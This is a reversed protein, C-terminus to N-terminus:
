MQQSFNATEPTSTEVTFAHYNGRWFSFDHNIKEVKRLLKEKTEFIGNINKRELLIRKLQKRKELASSIKKELELRTREINNGNFHPDSAIKCLNKLLSGIPITQNKDIFKRLSVYLPLMSILATLMKKHSDLLYITPYNIYHENEDPEVWEWPKEFFTPFSTKKVAVTSIALIMTVIPPLHYLFYVLALLTAIKLFTERRKYRTSIANIRESDVPHKNTNRIDFILQFILNYNTQSKPLKFNLIPKTELESQIQLLHIKAQQIFLRTENIIKTQMLDILIYTCAISKVEETSIIKQEGLIHKLEQSTPKMSIVQKFLNTHFNPEDIENLSINKLRLLNKLLIRLQGANFLDIFSIATSSLDLKDLYNKLERNAISLKCTTKADSKALIPILTDYSSLPSLAETTKHKEKLRFM